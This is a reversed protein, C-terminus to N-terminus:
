QFIAPRQDEDRSFDCGCFDVVGNVGPTFVTQRGYADYLYGEVIVGVVNTLAFVSGLTNQNYFLRQDGPGTATAGGDLNRDMVLLEDLGIGFVYQQILANTGDREDIARWGDYYFNTTGNLSGSNTM